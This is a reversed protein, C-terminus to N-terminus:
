AVVGRVFAEIFRRGEVGSLEPHFQAGVLAGRGIVSAFRQGYDTEGWIVTPDAPLVSYSHVFYFAPERDFADSLPTGPRLAVTNWGMHPTRPAALKPVTGELWGLGHGGEEGSEFFLQVGLCIGLIPVQDRYAQELPGALARRRLESVANLLSGVGPLIVWDTGPPLGGQRWLVATHGIRAAMAELSGLNGMAYDVIAVQM